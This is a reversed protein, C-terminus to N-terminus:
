WCGLNPGRIQLCTKWASMAVSLIFGNLWWIRSKWGQNRKELYFGLTGITLLRLNKGLCVLDQWKADINITFLSSWLLNWSTCGHSSLIHSVSIITASYFCLSIGCPIVFWDQGQDRSFFHLLGKTADSLKIKSAQPLCLYTHSTHLNRSTAIYSQTPHTQVDSPLQCCLVMTCSHNMCTHKAHIDQQREGARYYRTVIKDVNLASAYMFQRPLTLLKWNSYMMATLWFLSEYYLAKYLPPLGLTASSFKPM